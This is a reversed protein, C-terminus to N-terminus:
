RNLRDRLELLYYMDSRPEIPRSSNLWDGLAELLSPVLDPSGTAFQTALRPTRKTLEWSRTLWDQKPKNLESQLELLAPTVHTEALFRASAVIDEKKDEAAIATNLERSLRLIGAKFRDLHPKLELRAQNIQEPELSGMEPFAVTLCEIAM